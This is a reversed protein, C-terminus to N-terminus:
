CFRAVPLRSTSFILLLIEIVWIKEPKWAYSYSVFICYYFFDTRVRIVTNIISCQIIHTDLDWSRDVVANQVYIM